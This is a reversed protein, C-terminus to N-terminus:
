DFEDWCLACVRDRFHRPKKNQLQTLLKSKYVSSFCFFWRFAFCKTTLTQTFGGKLFVNQVFHFVATRSPNPYAGRLLILFDAFTNLRCDQPNPYAGRLLIPFVAFTNLRCDQLRKFDIIKVVILPM